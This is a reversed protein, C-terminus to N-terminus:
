CFNPINKAKFFLGAPSNDSCVKNYCVMAIGEVKKFNNVGSLYELFLNIFDKEVSCWFSNLVLSTDVDKEFFDKHFMFVSTRLKASIAGLVSLYVSMKEFFLENFYSTSFSFSSSVVDDGIKMCVEGMSESVAVGGSIVNIKDSILASRSINNAYVCSVSLENNFTKLMSVVSKWSNEKTSAKVTIFRGKSMGIYSSPDVVGEKFSPYNFGNAMLVDGDDTFKVFRSLPILRGILTKTFSDNFGERNTISVNWPFCGISEFYKLNELSESGIYNLMITELASKGEIFVHLLGNQGISPASKPTGSIKVFSDAEKKYNLYRKGGFSFNQFVILAMAKESDSLKRVIQNYQFVPSNIGPIHLMLIGSAEKRPNFEDINDVQLFANKGYLNFNIVNSRLYDCLESKLYPINAKNIQEDRLSLVGQALGIVLKYLSAKELFNGYIEIEDSSLLELLGVLGKNTKIWGDTVLNFNIDM